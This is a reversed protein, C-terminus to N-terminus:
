GVAVLAAVYLCLLHAAQDQGMFFAIAVPDTPDKTQTFLTRWLELPKRTDIVMHAVTVGASLLPPFVFCLALFHWFGHMWSAPHSLRTKNKAQWNTQFFWDAVLHAVVARVFLDAVTPGM